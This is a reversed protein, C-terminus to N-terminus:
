TSVDQNDDTSSDLATLERADKFQFVCISTTQMTKHGLIYERMPEHQNISDSTSGALPLLIM